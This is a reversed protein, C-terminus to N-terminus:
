KIVIDRSKRQNSAVGDHRAFLAVARQQEFACRQIALGAMAISMVFTTQPRAARKTVVRIAPRAPAEIVIGLRAVGQGSGMAVEVALGAVDGLVNRLRRQRHIADGTMAFIVHM